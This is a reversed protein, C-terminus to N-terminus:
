RISPLESDGCILREFELPSFMSVIQSDLLANFGSRIAALSPVFQGFRLEEWRRCFEDRNAFTM